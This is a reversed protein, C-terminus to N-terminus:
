TLEQPSLTQRGLLRARRHHATQKISEAKKPMILSVAERYLIHAALWDQWRSGGDVGAVHSEILTKAEDLKSAVRM